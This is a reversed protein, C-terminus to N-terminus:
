TTTCNLLDHRWSILRLRLSLWLWESALKLRAICNDATPPPKEVVDLISETRWLMEKSEYVAQNAICQHPHAKCLVHGFM